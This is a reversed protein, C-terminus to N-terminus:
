KTSKQQETKKKRELVPAEMVVMPAVLGSVSIEAKDLTYEASVLESWDEEAFYNMGVAPIICKISCVKNQQMDFAILAYRIIKGKIKSVLEELIRDLVAETEVSYILHPFMTMQEEAVEYKSKLGENLRSLANAYHFLKTDATRRLEKLNKQRMLTYLFQTKKDYIGIFEWVGRRMVEIQFREGPLYKKIERNIYNWKSGDSGNHTPFGEQVVYDKYLYTGDDIAKIIRCINEKEFPVKERYPKM